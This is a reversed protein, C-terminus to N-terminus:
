CRAIFAERIGLGSLDWKGQPVRRQGLWSGEERWLLLATARKPPKANAAEM